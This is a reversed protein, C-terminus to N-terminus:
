ARRFIQFSLAQVWNKQLTASLFAKFYFYFNDSNNEALNNLTRFMKKTKYTM